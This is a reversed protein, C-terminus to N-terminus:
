PLREAHRRRGRWSAVAAVIEPWALDVLSDHRERAAAVLRHVDDSGADVSRRLGALGGCQVKLTVAHPAAADPPLKLAFASRERLLALLTACNTRAVPSACAVAEREALAHRVALECAACGAQLAREFICPQPNAAGRAARFASEDM